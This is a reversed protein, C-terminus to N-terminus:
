RRIRQKLREETERSIYPRFLQNNWARGGFDELDIDKEKQGSPLPKGNKYVKPREDVPITEMYRIVLRSYVSDAYQSWNYNRKLTDPSVTINRVRLTDKGDESLFYSAIRRTRKESLSDFCLITNFKYLGPVISDITITVVSDLRLTDLPITDLMQPFYNVSDNAKLAVLVKDAVTLEKNLSDIIFDYMESFQVTQASYYYMCSDFDARTIGYKKFLENYYAYNKLDEGGQRGRNVALTGDVRHMDILLLRFQEINLPVKEKHCALTTCLLMVPLLFHLIKKIM